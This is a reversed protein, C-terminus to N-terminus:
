ADDDAARKDRQWDAWVPAFVICVMALTVVIFLYAVLTLVVGFAGFAVANKDVAPALFFPATAITGGLIFSGLLAGPLLARLGVAGRLLFAPTWLWFVLSGIVWVPVLVAWGRARLGSASVVLLAVAGSLVFFFLTYRLQDGATTKTEVRWARAYVDRVLPGVGIGWLLFSLVATATAAIANASATSFTGHVLDATAGELNLHDVLHNALANGGSGTVHFSALIVLTTPLVSLASYLTAACASNRSADFYARFWRSAFRGIPRDANRAIWEQAAEVRGSRAATETTGV